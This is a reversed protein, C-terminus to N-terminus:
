RDRVGEEAVPREESRIHMLSRYSMRDYRIHGVDRIM